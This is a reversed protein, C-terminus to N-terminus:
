TFLYYPDMTYVFADTLMDLDEMVDDDATHGAIVYSILFDKFEEKM